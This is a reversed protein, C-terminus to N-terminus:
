LEDHWPNQMNWWAALVAVLWLLFPRYWADSGAWLWTNVAPIFVFALAIILLLGRNIYM